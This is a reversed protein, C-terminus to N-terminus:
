INKIKTLVFKGLEGPFGENIPVVPPAVWKHLQDGRYSKPTKLHPNDFGITKSTTSGFALYLGILAAIKLKIKTIKYLNETLIDNVSVLGVVITLTWASGKEMSQISQRKPSYRSM